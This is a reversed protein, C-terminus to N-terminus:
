PLAFAVYKDGSKTNLKGGGCAIVVYQKGGVSYTSPTAYGAAPLQTQWRIKGTKKDIARLQEDKSAAIFLLGSGTVLPGGYNDTGTPPIGQATLEKYEGLPVQWRHEGTNLDIATLTGWPPASVPYGKSDYWRNYGTHQYPLGAKQTSVTQATNGKNFLFDVIAKREAEPLHSFSPMMGRGKLLVQHVADASLRTELGLLSPYSGDHNGRRDAGHCAACRLSYLQAGTVSANGIPQEKRILTSFCPNQKAPIYIIGEPDTASGGWQAGGDTGPFFITMDSTLPIYPSGTHAKRLTAVIEDRNSAWPNIDKETFTQKTFPAPKLPIPQTRSPFEGAVAAASFAKEVVPFLPKGKVRDFVFVHGQKTTQAVADIRRPRGDPGNQVVTLLNPPAPPDRDWIDHHVFQFHWLRKGTNANLALLCNAFLNNGKRNGGYFDYAASGTPIYVIGRERDIAMGAWANAGGLRERPNAPAWTDYGFEGPQPITHFTWVKQGTRVDYARVDGLLATEGESLRAGVIILNKYITNPTNPQVYNDGGPREIGEKLDIRGDQGFSDILKGTRADLAYLWKGAGFLIRQDAGDAWYTVGRSTTGGNDTLKTRWLEQGTAANLAFAQTNASVGYLIGAIVIPNCQMQTRNGVTDAGGSAYTWAVKLQQVNDTNLQILPSYHSRAGDGNYETWNTDPLAPTHVLRTTVFLLSAVVFLYRM